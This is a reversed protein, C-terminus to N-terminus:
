DIHIKVRNINLATGLLGTKEGFDSIFQRIYYGTSVYAEFTTIYVDNTNYLSKYNFTNWNNIADNKCFTNNTTDIEEDSFFAWSGNPTKTLGALKFVDQILNM